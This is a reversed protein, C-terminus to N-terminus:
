GDNIDKVKTYVEHYASEPLERVRSVGFQKVIGTAFEEGKIPVLKRFEDMLEELTITPDAEPLEVREEKKRSVRKKRKKKIPPDVEMEVITDQDGVATGAGVGTFTPSVSTTIVGPSIDLDSPVNKIEMPPSALKELANAVRELELAVAQLTEEIM